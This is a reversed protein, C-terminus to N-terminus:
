KIGFIRKFWMKIRNILGLDEPEFSVFLKWEIEEQQSFTTDSEQNFCTGVNVMMYEFSAKVDFKISKFNDSLSKSNFIWERAELGGQSFM